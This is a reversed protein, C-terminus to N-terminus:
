DVNNERYYFKLVIVIMEQEITRIRSIKRMIGRKDLSVFIQLMMMQKM